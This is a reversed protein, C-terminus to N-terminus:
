GETVTTEVRERVFSGFVGLGGEVNTTVNPIEGPSLTTPAFQIAQTEVFDQFAADLSVLTVEQPGYFGFALFPIQVLATGDGM